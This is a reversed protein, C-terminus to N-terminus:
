QNNNAENNRKIQDQPDIPTLREILQNKNRCSVTERKPKIASKRNTNPQAQHSHPITRMKLLLVQQPRLSKRKLTAGIGEM